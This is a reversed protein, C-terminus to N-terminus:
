LEIGTGNGTVTVDILGVFQKSFIRRGVAKTSVIVAVNDVGGVVPSYVLIRRYLGAGGNYDSASDYTTVIKDSAAATADFADLDVVCTGAIGTGAVGDTFPLLATASATPLCTAANGFLGTGSALKARGQQQLGQRVQAGMSSARALRAAVSNQQSAFMIGQMAGLIGVVLVGMSVMGEILSMGRRLKANSQTM